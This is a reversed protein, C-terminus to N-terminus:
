WGLACGHRRPDAAGYFIRGDQDQTVLVAQVNGVLPDWPQGIKPTHGLRKLTEVSSLGIRSELLLANDLGDFWRPVEVAQQLEMKFVLFNILVQLVIQTQAFAGPTSIALFPLNNRLVLVPSLTHAPRKAAGISNVQNPEAVFGLMRNNLIIGTEGAMAGCGFHHFISQILSVVNGESDAVVVCTTDPPEPKMRESRSAGYKPNLSTCGKLLDSPSVKMAEPDGVSPLVAQFVHRKIRVLLDVYEGSNHELTSFSTASLIQLQALLLIAVSNPPTVAINFDQFEACLPVEWRSAHRALDEQRILGNSRRMFQDIEQGIKGEYYDQYGASALRMLTGALARQRLVTGVTLKEGDPLFLASSNPHKALKTRNTNVLQALTEDVLFGVEAHVVAPELLTRLDQTGNQTLLENWGHVIGPVTCSAVDDESLANSLRDSPIHRPSLGSGNLAWTQKSNSAYGVAFVDGGVGCAQPLVVCSVASAAVAADVANGGSKLTDLAAQTSLPHGTSVM